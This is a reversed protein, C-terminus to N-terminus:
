REMQDSGDQLFRLIRMVDEISNSAAPMIRVEYEVHHAEEDTYHEPERFRETYRQIQEDNLSIDNGNKDGACIFFTGCIIDGNDLRRNGPMGTLKGEDNCYLHCDSKPLAVFEICGDVLKQMARFDNEIQKAYPTKGPEVVLVRLQNDETQQELPIVHFRDENPIPFDM